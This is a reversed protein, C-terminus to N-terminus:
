ESDLKFTDFLSESVEMVVSLTDNIIDSRENSRIVTGTSDVDDTSSESIVELVSFKSASNTVGQGFGLEKVGVGDPACDVVLEWQDVFTLTKENGNGEVGVGPGSTVEGHRWITDLGHIRVHTWNSLAGVDKNDTFSEIVVQSLITSALETGFLVVNDDLGVDKVVLM